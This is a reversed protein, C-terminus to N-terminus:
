KNSCNNKQNLGFNVILCEGSFEAIRKHFFPRLFWIGKGSFIWFYNWDFSLFSIFELFDGFLYTINSSIRWFLCRVKIGSQNCKWQAKLLAILHLSIKGLFPSVVLIQNWIEGLGTQFWEWLGKSFKFLSDPCSNVQSMASISMDLFPFFLFAGLLPQSAKLFHEQPM